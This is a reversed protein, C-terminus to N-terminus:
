PTAPREHVQLYTCTEVALESSTLVQELCQSLARQRQLESELAQSHPHEAGFLHRSSDLQSRVVALQENMLATFATQAQSRYTSQLNSLRQKIVPQLARISAQWAQVGAAKGSTLAQMWLGRSVSTSLPRDGRRDDFGPRIMELRQAHEEWQGDSRLALLDPSAPLISLLRRLSELPVDAEQLPVLNLHLRLSLRVGDWRGGESVLRKWASARCWWAAAADDLLADILLHGRAFFAWEPHRLAQQRQFTGTTADNASRARLHVKGSVDDDFRAHGGMGRLWHCLAGHPPNLSRLTTALAHARQFDASSPAFADDDDDHLRERRQQLAQALDPGSQRLAQAGGSLASHLAEGEFRDSMYELGSASATFVGVAEDVLEAWAGDIADADGCACVLSMVEGDRGLRDVRGIRQELAALSWPVDHHVVLSVFQFNRGEGGLPDCVMLWCDDRDRFASACSEREEPDQHAGFDTIHEPGFCSGLYDRLLPVALAHSTFLLVKEQPHEQWFARLSEVLAQDRQPIHKGWQQCAQRLEALATAEDPHLHSAASIAIHTSREADSGDDRLVSALSENGQARQRYEAFEEPEAVVAQRMALLRDLLHPHTWTAQELQLLWALLRPPPSQAHTTLLLQRYAALAQRVSREPADAQYHCWTRVREGLSLTPLGAEEAWRQLQARRHRIMRPHQPHTERLHVAAAHQDGRQLFDQLVADEPIIAQAQMATAKGQSCARILQAIGRSRDRMARLAQYDDRQWTHPQLLHFLALAADDDDPPPTASLLLVSPARASVTKLRKYLVGDADMRHCEDVILLDWSSTAFQLADRNGLHELAQHSCICWQEQWPNTVSRIRESDLMTFRRGGFKVFLELFWQDMLAGPCAVLVRMAPNLALLSQMILGAEITKGLGVEDALLFRVHADRLVREATMVQHPLLDIRAGPLGLIGRCHQWVADGWRLVDERASLTRPGWAEAKRARGTRTTGVRLDHFAAQALQELPDRPITVATIASEAISDATDSLQYRVIGDSHAAVAAVTGRQREPGYTIQTGPLLVYRTVGHAETTMEAGSALFRLVCWGPRSELLRAPGEAALDPVAVIIGVPLQTSM